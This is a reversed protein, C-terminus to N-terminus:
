LGRAMGAMAEFAVEHAAVLGPDEAATTFSEAVPSERYLARGSPGDILMFAGLMGAYVRGAPIVRIDVGQAALGRLHRLQDPMADGFDHGLSQEALIFTAEPRDAMFADQDAARAAWVGDIRDPGVAVYAAALMARAYAETQLLGPILAPEFLRVRTAEGIAASCQRSEASMWDVRRMEVCNSSASAAAKVWPSAFM